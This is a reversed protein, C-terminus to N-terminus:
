KNTLYKYLDDFGYKNNMDKLYNLKEDKEKLLTYQLELCM